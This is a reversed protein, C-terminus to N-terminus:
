FRFGIGLGYLFGGYKLGHNLDFEYQAMAQIFTTSNVFFKVGAEPGAIWSDKSGSVDSCQYGLNVGVFPVFRDIDINFDGYAAGSVAHSSGGDMWAFSPRLGLALQDIVFYGVSGQVAFDGSRFDKDNAGQGSLTVEFDGQKFQAKVVAPLLLSALVVAAISYRWM